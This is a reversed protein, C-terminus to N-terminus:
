SGAPLVDAPGPVSWTLRLLDDRTEVAAPAFGGLRDRLYTTAAAQAAPGGALRIELQRRPLEGAEEGPVVRIDTVTTPGVETALATLALMARGDLRGETIVQRAPDAVTLGPNDVLQAGAASRATRDAARQEAAAQRGAPEVRLVDVADDGSGFSAVEVSNEIAAAVVPVDDPFTRMSSTSVVYDYDSWGDPALGAVEPDTDAKYYWVVDDRDFGAHVEDVWMADDVILRRDRGVNQEIWAQAQRMPADVDLRVLGPLRAAWVPVAAAVLAVAVLLPVAPVVWRAVARRQPSRAARLAAEIVGPICLAALPILAVVYPVPLYGPRLAFLVAFVLAAAVPRLGRVVLALLGAVPAAVVLVPDLSWWAAATVRALSDPDFLSGSTTRGFLQFTLGQWLSTNDDGPALEGKVAALLLYTSGLLVLVAAAVSLTYRRTSRDACRWLQWGLFPLLILYTEKTLVAVGFAVAAATHALLQRRPAVALLFAGLLWPTAINDLYVIRHFQLALPSFAFIAVAAAAAPRSFGLRRALLWLLVVSVLAAVLVFERGALVAEPYRAFGGTLGIWGALQLWGVPPHDYFYTYHTLEGLNLVAYAQAIYTGEDDIRQPIGAMGAAHVVGSLVLLPALWYLSVRHEAPWRRAGSRPPSAPVMAGDDIRDAIQTTM